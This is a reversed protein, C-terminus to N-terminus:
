LGLLLDFGLDLAPDGPYVCLDLPIVLGDLYAVCLLENLCVLPVLDFLSGSNLIHM